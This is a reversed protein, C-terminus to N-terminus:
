SAGGPKWNLGEPSVNRSTENIANRKIKFNRASKPTNKLSGQALPRKPGCKVEM